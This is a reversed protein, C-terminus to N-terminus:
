SSVVAESIAKYIRDIRQAEADRANSQRKAEEREDESLHHWDNKVKVRSAILSRKKGEYVAIIEFHEYRYKFDGCFMALIGWMITIPFFLIRIIMGFISRTEGEKLTYTKVQVSSIMKIPYTHAEGAYVNWTSAMSILPLEYYSSDIMLRRNTVVCGTEELIIREDPAMTIESM